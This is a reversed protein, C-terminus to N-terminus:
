GVEMVFAMVVDYVIDRTIPLPSLNIQIVITNLGMGYPHGNYDIDYYQATDSGPPWWFKHGIRVVKGMNFSPFGINAWHDVWHPNQPKIDIRIIGDHIPVNKEFLNGDFYVGDMYTASYNWAPLRYQAEKAYYKTAM